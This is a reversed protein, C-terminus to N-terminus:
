HEDNSSEFLVDVAPPSEASILATMTGNGATATLAEEVPVPQTATHVARGLWFGAMATLVVAAALGPRVWTGLVEWSTLPQDLQSMVDRVFRDDDAASLAARLASGLERDPGHDFANRENM